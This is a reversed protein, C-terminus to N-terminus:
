LTSPEEVIVVLDAAHQFFRQNLHVCEELLLGLLVDIFLLPPIKGIISIVISVLKKSKMGTKIDVIKLKFLMKGLTAGYYYEMLVWYGVVLLVFIWWIFFVVWYIVRIILDDIISFAIALVTLFLIDVLWAVFRISWSALVLTQDVTYQKVSEDIRESSDLAASPVSRASSLIEGCVVCFMSDPDNRNSCSPCIKSSM